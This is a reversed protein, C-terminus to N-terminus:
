VTVGPFSWAYRAPLVGFRDWPTADVVSRSSESGCAASSAPSGSRIGEWLLASVVRRNLRTFQVQRTLTLLSTCLTVSPLSTTEACATSSRTEVRFQIGLRRAAHVSPRLQSSWREQVNSAARVATYSM